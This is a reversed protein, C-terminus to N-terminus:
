TLSAAAYTSPLNGIQVTIPNGLPYEVVLTFTKSVFSATALPALSISITM